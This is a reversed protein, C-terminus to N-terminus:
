WSQTRRFLVLATAATAGAILTSFGLRCKRGLWIESTALLFLFGALLSFWVDSPVNGGTLLAAFAFALLTIGKMKNSTHTPRVHM